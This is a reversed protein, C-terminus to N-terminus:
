GFGHGARGLAGDLLTSVTALAKRLRQVPAEWACGHWEEIVAQTSVGVGLVARPGGLAGLTAASLALSAATRTGIPVIATGVRLTPWRHLAVAAVAVADYSALESVWVGSVGLDHARTAIHLASRADDRGYRCACRSGTPPDGM